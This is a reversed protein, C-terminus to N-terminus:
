HISNQNERGKWMPETYPIEFPNFFHITFDNFLDINKENEKKKIKKQKWFISKSELQDRIESPEFNKCDM